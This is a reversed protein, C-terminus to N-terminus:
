LWWMKPTVKASTAIIQGPSNWIWTSTQTLIALGKRKQSFILGFIWHALLFCKVQKNSSWIAENKSTRYKSARWAGKCLNKFDGSPLALIPFKHLCWLLDGLNYLVVTERDFLIVKQAERALFGLSEDAHFNAWRSSFFDWGWFIGWLWPGRVVGCDCLLAGGKSIPLNNAFKLM